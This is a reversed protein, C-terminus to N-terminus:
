AGFARVKAGSLNGFNSLVIQSEKLSHSGSGLSKQNIRPPTTFVLQSREQSDKVRKEGREYSKKTKMRNKEQIEKESM